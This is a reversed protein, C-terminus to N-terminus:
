SAVFAVFRQLEGGEGWALYALVALLVVIKIALKM